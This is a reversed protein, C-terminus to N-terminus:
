FLTKRQKLAGLVMSLILVKFGMKTWWFANMEFTKDKLTDLNAVQGNELEEERSENCLM